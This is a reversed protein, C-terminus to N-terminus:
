QPEEIQGSLYRSLWAQGMRLERTVTATSIGLTESIEDGNLGSFYRLEIVRAKRADLRALDNLGDNLDIFATSGSFVGHQNEDLEIKVGGSGRKAAQRVRSHDVLVQRMVRAAIALFHVRTSFNAQDQNVLRLYAENVLATPQLTHNHREQRFVSKALRRLEDYLLPTLRELVSQDGDQLNLLLRTIDSPPLMIHRNGKFKLRQKIILKGERNRM